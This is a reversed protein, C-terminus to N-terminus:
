QDVLLGPPDPAMHDADASGVVLQHDHDVEVLEAQVMQQGSHLYLIIIWLEDDYSVTTYITRCYFMPM